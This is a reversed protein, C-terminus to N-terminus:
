EKPPKGINVTNSYFNFGICIYPRLGFAFYNKTWGASEGFSSDVFTYNAFDFTLISGISIYLVNTIDLKLGIDGGAGLNFALLSFGRTEDYDPIYKSYSAATEMFSFGIGFLLKLKENFSHRFGPGIIIGVQMLFDYNGSVDIEPEIGLLETPITKPFAFVDHVFIGINMNNWFQYSNLNIGLSSMYSKSTNEKDSISQFFNCYEFGFSFWNEALSFVAPNIGVALILLLFLKKM